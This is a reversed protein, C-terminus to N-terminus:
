FVSGFRRRLAKTITTYSARQSATMHALIESAPGHLIAVLQLAKDQASMCDQGQALLEFQAQLWLMDSFVTGKTGPSPSLQCTPNTQTPNSTGGVETNLAAPLSPTSKHQEVVPTMLENRVVMWEMM